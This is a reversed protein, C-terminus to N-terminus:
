FMKPGMTPCRCGWGGTQLDFEVLYEQSTTPRWNHPRVATWVSTAPSGAGPFMGYHVGQPPMLACPPCLCPTLAHRYGGLLSPSDLLAHMSPCCLCSLTLTAMSLSLNPGSGGLRDGRGPTVRGVEGEHIVVSEDTVPDYWLLRSHSALMLARPPIPPLRRGVAAAAPEPVAAEETSAVDVAEFTPEEETISGADAQEGVIEALDIARNGSGDAADASGRAGREAMSSLDSVAASSSGSGGHPKWTGAKGTVRYVTEFHYVGTIAVAAALWLMVLGLRRSRGKRQPRTTVGGLLDNVRSKPSYGM